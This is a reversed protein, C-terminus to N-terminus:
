LSKGMWSAPPVAKYWTSCIDYKKEWFSRYHNLHLQLLSALLKHSSFRDSAGLFPCACVRFLKPPLFIKRSSISYNRSYELIEGSHSYKQWYYQYCICVLYLILVHGKVRCQVTKFTNSQINAFNMHYLYNELGTFENVHWRPCPFFNQPVKQRNRLEQLKQQLKVLRWMNETMRVLKVLRWTSETPKVLQLQTCLLPM